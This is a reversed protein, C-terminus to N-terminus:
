KGMIRFCNRQIPKSKYIVIFPEEKKQEEEYFINRDLLSNKQKVYKMSIKFDELLSRYPFDKTIGYFEQWEPEM